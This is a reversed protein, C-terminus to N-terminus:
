NTSCRSTTGTTAPELGTLWGMHALNL